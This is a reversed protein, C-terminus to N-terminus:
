PDKAPDKAPDPTNSGPAAETNEPGPCDQAALAPSSAQGLLIDLYARVRLKDM